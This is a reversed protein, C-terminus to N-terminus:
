QQSSHGATGGPLNTCGPEGGLRIALVNVLTTSMDAHIFLIGSSFPVAAVFPRIAVCSGTDDIAAALAAPPAPSALPAAPRPLPASVLTALALFLSKLM